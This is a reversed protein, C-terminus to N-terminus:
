DFTIKLMSFDDDLESQRSINRASLYMQKVSSKNKILNNELDDTFEKFTYMEGEKEFEFAADSFLVLSSGKAIDYEDTSYVLDPVAGIFIDQSYLEFLKKSNFLLMPPHGAASYRLKRTKTNYVAYFMTFYLGSYDSMMFLKNLATLVEDPKGFDVNPLTRNKLINLVQVSHLASGVGHGSVDLIYVAFNEDDLMNYGFADGGLQACPIYVWETKINGKSIQMPLLSMVYKSAIDLEKRMLKLLRENENNSVTLHGNIRELEKNIRNLEENFKKKQKYSIYYFIAILIIIVAIASILYILRVLALYEAERAKLEASLLKNTDSLRQNVQEIEINRARLSDIERYFEDLHELGSGTRKSEAIAYLLTDIRSKNRNIERENENIARINAKIISSDAEDTSRVKPIKVLIERKPKAVAEYSSSDAFEAFNSNAETAPKEKFIEVTDIRIEKKSVAIRLSDVSSRLVSIERFLKENSKLEIIYENRNKGNSYSLYSYEPKVNPGFVISINSNTSITEKQGISNFMVIRVKEGDQAIALYSFSILIIINVIIKKLNIVQQM